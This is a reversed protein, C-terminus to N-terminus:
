VDEEGSLMKETQKMVEVIHKSTLSELTSHMEQTSLPENSETEEGVKYLVHIVSILHNDQEQYISDELVQYYEDNILLRFKIKTIMFSNITKAQEEYNHRDDPHINNYLEDFKMENEKLHAFTVFSSTAVYTKTFYDFYLITRNSLSELIYQQQKMSDIRLTANQLLNNLNIFASELNRYLYINKAICKKHFIIPEILLHYEQLSLKSTDITDLPHSTQKIVFDALLNKHLSSNDSCRLIFATKLDPTFTEKNIKQIDWYKFVVDWLSAKKFQEKSCNTHRLVSTSVTDIRNKNDVQIFFADEQALLTDLSKEIMVQKKQIITIFEYSAAGCLLAILVIFLYHVVVPLKVSLLLIYLFLGLIFEFIVTKKFMLISFLSILFLFLILCIGIYFIPASINFVIVGFISTSM